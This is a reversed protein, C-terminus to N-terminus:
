RALLRRRRTGKQLISVHDLKPNKEVQNAKAKGFNGKGQGKGKSDGIRKGKGKSGYGKALLEKGIGRGKDGERGTGCGRGGGTVKGNGQSICQTLKWRKNDKTTTEEM